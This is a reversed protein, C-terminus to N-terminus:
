SVVLGGSVTHTVGLQDKFTFNGGNVGGIQYNSANITGGSCQIAGCTILGSSNIFSLVAYGGSNSYAVGDSTKVGGIGSSTVFGQSNVWAQTAVANGGITMSAASVGNTVAVSQFSADGAGTIHFTGGSQQVANTAGTATSNFVTAVAGNTVTVSQFSADGAGTIHFTGGATQVANTAGTASSNFVTAVVGNGSGTLTLVNASYSINGGGLYGQGTVWAQTAVANGGITMSGASVGNTVAVSQFAADGAGTISFTGFQQQVANTAGTATSNFTQAIAGNTVTASQFFADGAGTIHFTGSQQQVANTAGTATSNFVAAVAGNTVAISQFAADGAGTIHFTGGVTQVANTAGTASSNFTPAVMGGGAGTVTLVKTTDDWQLDASGKMLFGTSDVFQVTKSAGTVRALPKFADGDVSLHMAVSDAKLSAFGPASLMSGTTSLLAGAISGSSAAKSFEALNSGFIHNGAIWNTEGSWPMSGAGWNEIEQVAAAASPPSWQINNEAIDCNATNVQGGGSAPVFNGLMIPPFAAVSPHSITNGSVHCGRAAFLRIAGEYCNIFTNDTISVNTGGPAYYNNGTQVGYTFNGPWAAIQDETYEPDTSIPVRCTNGSVRGYSFGDLDFFAGLASICSNGVYDVGASGSTDIFVAYQGGLYKPTSTSTDDVTIYGIRRGTNNAVLGGITNGIEICDRGIDEFHNGLIRVNEHMKTFAYGHGSIQNGTCRRSTCGSVLINKAAYTTGDGQYHIGGTWTGYNLDGATTGFLHPRNNQLLGDVLWVDVIDGTRADIAVAYGGTHQIIFDRMKFGTVGGKVWITTNKTLPTQMPDNGGAAITSYLVGTPTTVDGDFAMGDIGCNDGIVNILGSGNPMNAGRKILSQAGQGVLTVNSRLNVPTKLLYEYGGPFYLAAGGVNNADAIASELAPGDDTVGDGVVGLSLVSM